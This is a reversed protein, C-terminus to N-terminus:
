QSKPGLRATLIARFRDLAAPDAASTGVCFGTLAHGLVILRGATEEWRRLVDWRVLFSGIATRSELGQDNVTVRARFALQPDSPDVDPRTRSTRRLVRRLWPRRMRRRIAMSGLARGIMVLVSAALTGPQDLVLVRFMSGPSPGRRDGAWAVLIGGAMALPGLAAAVLVTLAARRLRGARMAPTALLRMNLALQDELTVMVDFALVTAPDAPSTAVSM